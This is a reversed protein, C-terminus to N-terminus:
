RSPAPQSGSQSSRMALATAPESIIRWCWLALVGLLPLGLGATLLRSGSGASYAVALLATTSLLATAVYLVPQSNALSTRALLVIILCGMGETCLTAIASGTVGMRPILAFNLAVNIVLGIIAVVVMLKARRVAILVRGAMLNSASMVIVPALLQTLRVARHYSNGGILAVVVPALLATTISGAAGLGTILAAARRAHGAQEDRDTRAMRAFAVVSVTALVMVVGEIIRYALAYDALGSRYHFSALVLQDARVHLLSIAGALGLPLSSALLARATLRADTPESGGQLRRPFLFLWTLLAAITQSAGVVLFQRLESVHPALTLLSVLVATGVLQAAVNATVLRRFSLQYQWYAFCAASLLTLGSSPLLVLLALRAGSDFVVMTVPVVLILGGLFAILGARIGSFLVHQHNTTRGFSFLLTSTLGFEAVVELVSAAALGAALDGFRNAGLVRVMVAYSIVQLTMAVAKGGIQVTSGSILEGLSDKIGPPKKGDVTHTRPQDLTIRCPYRPQNRGPSIGPNSLAGRSADKM